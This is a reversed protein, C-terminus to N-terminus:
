GLIEEVENYVQLNFVYEKISAMNEIINKNLHKDIKTRAKTIYEYAKNYKKDLISNLCM